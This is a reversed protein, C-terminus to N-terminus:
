VEIIQYAASKRLRNMIALGLGKLELGEILIREIGEEDFERLLKFISQSIEILNDKSGMIKVNVGSYYDELEKSVMVGIKKDENANILKKIKDKIKDEKGEILIVEAQPAYHRYKMGPSIAAKSENAFKSKVVPDIQVQGLEALLEEYTVGGPRLLIPVERSLDVVTSEVGLGTQGGDIIGAVRGALDEIVHEALTPSPKGSLNASPAALPLGTEKILKLAIPHDPMRVAVTNLGGTTVEPVKQSKPLILTLPGPWFKDMLKKALQPVGESILNEIDKEEGIHIILPNDSPRGKATFISKVAREDLANAGLGYVTETPFAVLEGARLLETADKIEKESFVKTGKISRM